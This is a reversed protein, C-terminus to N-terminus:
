GRKAESRSTEAFASVRVSATLPSISKGPRARQEFRLVTRREESSRRCARDARPRPDARPRRAHGRLHEGDRPEARPADRPVGGPHRQRRAHRPRQRAIDLAKGCNNRKVLSIMEPAVRARTSCAGSACRRRCASRSRPRCTPSSRRSSSRRRRAAPRVAQPRAHIPARPALLGRGRGDRGLLHRLPRPQPLRVPGEPGLREAAARREPVEVGDM